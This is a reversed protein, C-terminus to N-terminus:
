YTEEENQTSMKRPRALPPGMEGGDVFGSSTRRGASQRRPLGSPTPIGSKDLTLRRAIPTAVNSGDSNSGTEADRLSM